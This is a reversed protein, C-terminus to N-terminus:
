LKLIIHEMVSYVKEISIEGNIYEKLLEFCLFLEKSLVYEMELNVEPANGLRVKIYKYTDMGLAQAQEKLSNWLSTSITLSLAKANQTRVRRHEKKYLKYYTKKCAIIQEKSPHEGLHTDLYDYVSTYKM